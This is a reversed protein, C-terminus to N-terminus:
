GVGSRGSQAPSNEPKGPRPGRPATAGHVVQEIERAFHCDHDPAGTHQAACQRFLNPEPREEAIDEWIGLLEDRESAPHAMYPDYILSALDYEQRGRRLGQFDILYVKGDKVMLNQSQFDRHVLHKASRGLRDALNTFAEDRRLVSADRDLLGEVIHEFFYEQEWRYLTPDFPPMLEMEKDVKTYFLRDIQELASRYLPAREAFPRDKYSLLDEDGLDEIQEPAGDLALDRGGTRRRRQHDELARARRLRTM